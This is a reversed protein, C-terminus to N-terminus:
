VITFLILRGDITGAALINNRADLSMVITPVGGVQVEGEWIRSGNVYDIMGLAGGTTCYVICTSDPILTMAIVQSDVALQWQCARTAINYCDISRSNLDVNRSFVRYYRILRGDQTFLALNDNLQREDDWPIIKKSWPWRGIARLLKNVYPKAAKGVLFYNYPGNHTLLHDVDECVFTPITRADADMIFHNASRFRRLSQDVALFRGQHDISFTYLRSCRKFEELRDARFRYLLSIGCPEMDPVGPLWVNVYRDSQYALIQAGYGEGRAQFTREGLMNWVELHCHEHIVAIHSDDLWSVGWTKYRKEYGPVSLLVELSREDRDRDVFRDNAFGLEAPTGPKLGALRPDKDEITNNAKGASPLDSSVFNIYNTGEEETNAPSLLVSLQGPENYRCYVIERSESFVPYSHNTEWNWIYLQGEFYDGQTYWGTGIALIPQHPHFAIDNISFQAGDFVALLRGFDSSYLSVRETFRQGDCFRQGMLYLSSFHSYVAAFRGDPSHFVTIPQGVDALTPPTLEKNFVLGTPSFM